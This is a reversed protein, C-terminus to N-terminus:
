SASHRGLLPLKLEAVLGSAEWDFTLSGGSARVLAGVIRSGSERTPQSVEPGNQEHWKMELEDHDTVKWTLDVIGKEVGLSGHKVANTALEHLLLTIPTLSHEPLTVDDGNLRVQAEGLPAYAVLLMKALEELHLVKPADDSITAFHAQGLARLRDAIKKSYDKPDTASRGTMEIVVTMVNVINKLRHLLEDTKLAAMRREEERVTSIDMQSGFRFILNGEDDFVPGIQLANIFREGSKRYNVIEVMTVENADLAQRIQEVSEKTTDPGQLFRCNKGVFDEEDYGTLECFAPNAFVIPEDPKSPDTICLPLRSYRIAHAFVANNRMTEATFADSDLM